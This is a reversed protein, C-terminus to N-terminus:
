IYSSSSFICPIFTSIFLRLHAGGAQWGLVAPRGGGMGAGCCALAASRDEKVPDSAMSAVSNVLPFVVPAEFKLDQANPPLSPAPHHANLLCLGRALGAVHVACARSSSSVALDASRDAVVTNGNDDNAQHGGPPAGDRCAVRRAPARLRLLGPLRAAALPAAAAPTASHRSCAAPTGCVRLAQICPM